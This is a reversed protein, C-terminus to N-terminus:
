SFSLYPIVILLLNRGCKLSFFCLQKFFCSIIKRILYFTEHTMRSSIKLCLKSFISFIESSIFNIKLMSAGRRQPYTPVTNLALM